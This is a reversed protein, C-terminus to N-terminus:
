VEYGYRAALQAVEPVDRIDGWLLTEHKSEGEHPIEVSEDLGLEMAKKPWWESIDELRLMCDARDEARRNWDCWFHAAYRAPGDEEYSRGTHVQTWHWFHPRNMEALSAITPLPHRVLHWVHDWRVTSPREAAHAGPYLFDDVTFL